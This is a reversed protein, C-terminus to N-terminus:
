LLSALGSKTAAVALSHNGPSTGLYLANRIGYGSLRSLGPSNLKVIAVEEIWDSWPTNDDRVLQVEVRIKRYYQIVGNGYSIPIVGRWGTYGQINGLYQLDSNFLSLIDSGTDNMAIIGHVTGDSRPLSTWIAWSWLYAKSCVSFANGIISTEEWVWGTHNRAEEETVVKGEVLWVEQIGDLKKDEYLKILAEINIHQQEPQYLPHKPDLCDRLVQIHGQVDFVQPIPIAPSFKVQKTAMVVVCIIESQHFPNLASPLQNRILQLNHNLLFLASSVFGALTRHPLAGFIPTITQACCRQRGVLCAEEGGVDGIYNEVSEM